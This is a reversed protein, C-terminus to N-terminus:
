AATTVIPAKARKTLRHGLRICPGEIYRYSLYAMPLTLAFVVFLTQQSNATRGAAILMALFHFVYLGYSVTGFFALSGLRDTGNALALVVLAGIVGWVSSDIAAHWYSVGLLACLQPSFLGALFIVGLVGLAAMSCWRRPTAYHPLAAAIVGFIFHPYYFPRASPVDSYM